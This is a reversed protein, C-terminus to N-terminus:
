SNKQKMPKVILMNEKLSEVDPHSGWTIIEINNAQFKVGLLESFFNSKFIYVNCKKQPLM